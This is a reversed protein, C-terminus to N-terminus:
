PEPAFGRTAHDIARSPQRATHDMGCQRWEPNRPEAKLLYDATLDEAARSGGSGSPSRGGWQGRERAGLLCPFWTSWLSRRDVAAANAAATRRVAHPWPTCSLVELWPPFLLLPAPFEASAFAAWCFTSSYTLSGVAIGSVVGSVAGGFGPPVNTHIFHSMPWHAISPSPM